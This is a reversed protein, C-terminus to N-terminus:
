NASAQRAISHSAEYQDIMRLCDEAQSAADGFYANGEVQSLFFKVHPLLEEKLIGTRMAEEIGVELIREIQKQVQWGLSSFDRCISIIDSIDLPISFGENASFSKRDFTTM